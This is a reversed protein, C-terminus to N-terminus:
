VEQDMIENYIKNSVAHFDEQSFPDENNTCYDICYQEIAKKVVQRVAILPAVCEPSIRKLQEEYHDKTYFYLEKQEAKM